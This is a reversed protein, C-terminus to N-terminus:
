SFVLTLNRVELKPLTTERGFEYAQTFHHPKGSDYAQSFGKVWIM